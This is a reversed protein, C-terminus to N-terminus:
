KRKGKGKGKGRAEGAEEAARVERGVEKAEVPAPKSQNCHEMCDKLLYILLVVNTLMWKYSVVDVNSGADAYELVIVVVQGFVAPWIGCDLILGFGGAVMGAVVAKRILEAWGFGAGCM